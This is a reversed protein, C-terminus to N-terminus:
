QKNEGDGKDMLDLIQSWKNTFHEKIDKQLVLAAVCGIDLITEIIYFVTRLTSADYMKNGIYKFGSLMMLGIFVAGVYNLKDMGTYLSALIIADFIFSGPTTTKFLIGNLILKIVFYAAIALVFRRGQQNNTKM